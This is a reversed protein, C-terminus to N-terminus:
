SRFRTPLYRRLDFARFTLKTMSAKLMRILAYPSILVDSTGNIKDIIVPSSSTQTLPDFKVYLSRDRLPRDRQHASRLEKQLMAINVNLSTQRFNLM